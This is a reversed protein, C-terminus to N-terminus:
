QEGGSSELVSRMSRLARHTLSKMSSVSCDLYAAATAEPLDEYYRLYIAARQRVPLQLLATWVEDSTEIDVDISPTSVSIAVRAERTRRASNKRHQDRVVSIVTRYIYSTLRDIDSIRGLRSYLKIFADHTIDEATQQSGTLAYALRFGREAVLAYLREAREQKM